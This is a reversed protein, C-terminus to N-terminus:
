VGQKKYLAEGKSVGDSPSPSYDLKREKEENPTIFAERIQM